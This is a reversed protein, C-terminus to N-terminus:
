EGEGPSRVGFGTPRGKRGPSGPPPPPHSVYALAAFWREILFSGTTPRLTKTSSLQLGATAKGCLVLSMSIVRACVVKRELM